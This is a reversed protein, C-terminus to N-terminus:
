KKCLNGMIRASRTKSLWQESIRNFRKRIYELGLGRSKTKVRNGFNSTPEKTFNFFTGMRTNTNDADENKVDVEMANRIAVPNVTATVFDVVSM